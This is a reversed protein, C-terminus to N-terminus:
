GSRASFIEKARDLGHRIGAACRMNMAGYLDLAPFLQDRLKVDFPMRLVLSVSDVPVDLIRFLARRDRRGEFEFIPSSAARQSITIPNVGSAYGAPAIRTQRNDM